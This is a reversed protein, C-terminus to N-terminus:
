PDCCGKECREEKSKGINSYIRLDKNVFISFTGFYLETEKNQIIYPVWVKQESPIVVGKFGEFKWIMVDYNCFNRM